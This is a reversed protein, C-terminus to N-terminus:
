ILQSVGLFWYASYIRGSRRCGWTTFCTTIRTPALLRPALRPEGQHTFVGEQDEGGPPGAAEAEPDERLVIDEVDVRAAPEPIEGPPRAVVEQYM